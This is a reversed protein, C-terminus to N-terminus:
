DSRMVIKAAHRSKSSSFETQSPFSPKGPVKSTCAVVDRDLIVIIACAPSLERALLLPM